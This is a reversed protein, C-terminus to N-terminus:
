QRIPSATLCTRPQVSNDGTATVLEANATVGSCRFCIESERNPLIVLRLALMLVLTWVPMM